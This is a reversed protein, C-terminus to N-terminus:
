QRSITQKHDYRKKIAAIRRSYMFELGKVFERKIQPTGYGSIFIKKLEKLSKKCKCIEVKKKIRRNM